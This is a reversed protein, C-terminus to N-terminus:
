VINPKDDLSMLYKIMELHGYKCASRFGKENTAHINVGNNVLEVVRDLRGEECANIFDMRQFLISFSIIRETEL